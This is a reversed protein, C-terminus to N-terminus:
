WLLRQDFIVLLLVMMAVIWWEYTAYGAVADFWNTTSEWVISRMLISHLLVVSSSDTTWQLTCLACYYECQMMSPYGSESTVIEYSHDGFFDLFIIANTLAPVCGWHAAFPHCSLPKVMWQRTGRGLIDPGDALVSDFGWGMSYNSPQYVCWLCEYVVVSTAVVDSVRGKANFDFVM